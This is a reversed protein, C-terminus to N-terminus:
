PGFMPVNQMLHHHGGADDWEINWWVTDDTPGACMLMICFDDTSWKDSQAPVDVFSVDGDVITVYGRVDALSATVNFADGTGRNEIRVEMYATLAITGDPNVTM